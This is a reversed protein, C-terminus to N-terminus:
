PQPFTKVDHRDHMTGFRFVVVATDSMDFGYTRPLGGAPEISSCTITLAPAAYVHCYVNAGALAFGGNLALSLRRHAGFLTRLGKKVRVKGAKDLTATLGGSKACTVTTGTATCSVQTRKVVALDGPLLTPAEDAAAM